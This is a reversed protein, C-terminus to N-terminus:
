SSFEAPASARVFHKKVLPSCTNSCYCCRLLLRQRRRPCSGAGARMGPVDNHERALPSSALVYVLMAVLVTALIGFLVTQLATNAIGVEVAIDVGIALPFMLGVPWM